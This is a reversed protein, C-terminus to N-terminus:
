CTEDLLMDIAYQPVNYGIEKLEMLRAACEEPTEDIFTEGDHPLGIDKHEGSELWEQVKKDRELYEKIGDEGREWWAGISEPQEGIGTRRRAAVHIVFGEASEYVYVDSQYDDSSLRCYSM